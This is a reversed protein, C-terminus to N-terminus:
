LKIDARYLTAEIRDLRSIVRALLCWRYADEEGRSPQPGFSKGLQERIDDLISTEEPTLPIALRPVSM